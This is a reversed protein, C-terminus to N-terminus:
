ILILIWFNPANKLPITMGLIPANIAHPSKVASKIGVPQNGLSLSPLM